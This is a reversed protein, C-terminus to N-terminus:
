NEELSATCPPAHPATSAETEVSADVPVACCLQGRWVPDRGWGAGDCGGRAVRRGSGCRRAPPAARTGGWRGSSLCSARSPSIRVREYWEDDLPVRDFLKFVAKAGPM